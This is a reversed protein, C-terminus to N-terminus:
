VHGHVGMDGGGCLRSRTELVDNGHKMRQWVDKYGSEFFFCFAREGQPLFEGIVVALSFWTALQFIGQQILLTPM